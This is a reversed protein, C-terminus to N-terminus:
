SLDSFEIKIKDKVGTLSDDSEICDTITDETKFEIVFESGKNEKSNVSITGGMLDVLSKVLSLGLGTGEARRSLSSNIQAFKDFIYNIKEKPIGIGEDRVTLSIINENIHLDVFINKGEPTFKVANSLLNLLIKEYKDKDLCVFIEEENTDFILNLGKATAYSNTLTVIEETTSILEFKSNNLTIFGAEAKSLDLINNILKLLRGCNQSIRSIIKAMNPTIEKAYISNALQLSSSIINLPTRLEHSTLTFFEDKLLNVRELEENHRVEETIDLAHLHVRTVEDSVSLYPRFKIKYIREDGDAYRAKYTNVIYEKEYKICKNIIEIVDDKEHEGILDLISANKISVKLPTDREMLSVVKEFTRNYLIINLSPYEMVAVPIDLTNIVNKVFRTKDELEKEHLKMYTIDKITTITYIMNRDWDFVPTSNIEVYKVEGTMKNIREFVYNKLQVYKKVYINLYQEITVNEGYKDRLVYDEYFRNLNRVEMPTVGMIEYFAKNHFIVNCNSDLVWLGESINKIVHTLHLLHQKERSKLVDIIHTKSKLEVFMKEYKERAENLKYSSSYTDTVDTIYVLFGKCNEKLPLIKMKYLNEEYGNVVRKLILIDKDLEEHLFGYEEILSEGNEMTLGVETLFISFDKGLAEDRDTDFYRCTSNNVDMITGKENTIIVSFNITEIISKALNDGSM